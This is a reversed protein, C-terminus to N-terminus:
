ETKTLVVGYVFGNMGMRWVRDLRLPGGVFLEEPPPLADLSQHLYRYEDAAGALAAGVAPLVLSTGARHLHRWVPSAPRTLDVVAVRGGPRLVRRIEGLTASVSELNRFVFASFVGDFSDDDFPLAEGVGAVRRTLPSLLLMDVVPDLAVVIREGFAEGAAGTGSGLDLVLGSPLHEIATMRWSQEQGLSLVRNVRDYRSAIRAFIPDSIGSM